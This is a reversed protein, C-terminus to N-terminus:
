IIDVYKVFEDIYEIGMFEIIIVMGFEDVVKCM